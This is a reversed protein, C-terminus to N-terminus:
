AAGALIFDAIAAAIERPETGLSLRYCPLDRTLDSFFRFGSEREGPMQVIGSPALAIMAEKRSIPM